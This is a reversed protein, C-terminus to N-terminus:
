EGDKLHHRNQGCNDNTHLVTLQVDACHDDSSIVSLRVRLGQGITQQANPGASELELLVSFRQCSRRTILSMDGKTDKVKFGKVYSGIM